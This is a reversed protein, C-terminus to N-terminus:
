REGQNELELTSHTIGIEKLALRVRTKIGVRDPDTVVHMTASRTKGDMSWLHIHYVEHVGEISEVRRKIQEVSVGSPVKQLFICLVEKLTKIAGILIFAAVGISMIPDIISINTLKMVIAGFLVALWGLSDELMHLNVARQNLSDGNRTLLAAILNIVVGIIGFHIMGDYNIETPVMIRLVANYIVIISGLILIASTIFGGIVSFRSYGYTYNEDPM